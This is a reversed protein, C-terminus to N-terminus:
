LSEKRVMIISGKGSCDSFKFVRRFPQCSVHEGFPITYIVRRRTTRMRRGSNERRSWRSPRCDADSWRVHRYRSRDRERTVINENCHGKPQRATVITEMSMFGTRDHVVTRHASAYNREFTRTIHPLGRTQLMAIMCDQQQQLDTLLPLKAHAM